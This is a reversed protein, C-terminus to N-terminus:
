KKGGCYRSRGCSVSSDKQTHSTHSPRSCLRSPPVEMGMNLLFPLSLVPGCRSLTHSPTGGLRVQGVEVGPLTHTGKTNTNTNTNLERPLPIHTDM